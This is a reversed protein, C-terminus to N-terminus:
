YEYHLQNVDVMDKYKTWGNSHIHYVQCHGGSGADRHTAHYIARQGLEVAEEVKLDWHLHTDLIGYAYTSGSGCSFVNGKLRTGDNDLYFLQPGEKDWGAIMVGM